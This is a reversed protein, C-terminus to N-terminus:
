GSTVGSNNERRLSMDSGIRGLKYFVHQSPVPLTVSYSNLMLVIPNTTPRDATNEQIYLLGIHISRTVETRSSTRM